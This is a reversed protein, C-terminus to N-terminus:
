FGAAWAAGGFLAAAGMAATQRAAGASSSSSQQDRASSAAAGASSLAGSPATTYGSAAADTSATLGTYTTTMMMSTMGSTYPVAGSMAGSFAPMSEDEDPNPMATSNPNLVGDIVHVVGGSVLVDPNIVRASNVFVEGDIITINVDPGAMTPLSTNELLSSYAVTGNIVHYQLLSAAQATTLNPLISGIDEFAANSPAFVTIDQAMDLAMTLNTAELAGALATLGAAEATASVNEPITLPTNIIHVM